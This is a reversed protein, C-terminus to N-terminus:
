PRIPQIHYEVVVLTTFLMRLPLIANAHSLLVPTRFLQAHVYDPSLTVQHEYISLCDTRFLETPFCTFTLEATLERSCRKLKVRENVQGQVLVFVCAALM